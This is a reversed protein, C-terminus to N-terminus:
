THAGSRPVPRTGPPTATSSHRGRPCRGPAFGTRLRFTSIDLPASASILHGVVVREDALGDGAELLIGALRPAHEVLARARSQDTLQAVHIGGSVSDSIVRSRKASSSAIRLTSASAARRNRISGGRGSVKDLTRGPAGAGFAGAGLAGARAGRGARRRGARWRRLAMSLSASVARRAAAAGGGGGGIGAGAGSGRRSAAGGRRLEEEEAAADHPQPGVM